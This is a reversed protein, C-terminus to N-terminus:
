NRRNFYRKHDKFFELVNLRKCDWMLWRDVSLRLQRKGGREGLPYQVVICFEVAQYGNRYLVCNQDLIAAQLEESTFPCFSQSHPVYPDFIAISPHPM